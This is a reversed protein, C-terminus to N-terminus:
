YLWCDFSSKYSLAEQIIETTFFFFFFFVNATKNDKIRRQRLTTRKCRISSLSLRDLSLPINEVQHFVTSCVYQLFLVLGASGKFYFFYICYIATDELEPTPLTKKGTHWNTFNLTLIYTQM